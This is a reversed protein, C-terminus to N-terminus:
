CVDNGSWFGLSKISWEIDLGLGYEGEFHLVAAFGMAVDEGYLLSCGRGARECPM